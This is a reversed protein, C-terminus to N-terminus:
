HVSEPHIMRLLEEAADVVRPGPVVFIDEAVPYVRNRVVAPLDPFERNWLNIVALRHDATVADTNAMDGMDIIVEPRRAYIEERPIRPYYSEADFFANVGGAIDILENLFSGKGVVILDAVTAPTRGVIFMVSRKEREAAAERVAELRKKMRGILESARAQTGTREGLTELSRYIGALNNHRLALTALGARQLRNILEGHEELVVVLDPQLAVMTELNPRLYDGIKPKDRVEPPYHCYTTVAVVRDGLGLAYLMETISPAASIIRQPEAAYCAAALALMLALIRPFPKM